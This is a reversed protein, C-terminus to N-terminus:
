RNTGSHGGTVVVGSSNPAGGWSAVGSCNPARGGGAVTTVITYGLTKRIEKITMTGPMKAMLIEPVESPPKGCSM